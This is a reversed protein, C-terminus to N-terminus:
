KTVNQGIMMEVRRDKQYETKGARPYLESASFARFLQSCAQKIAAAEKENEATFVLKSMVAYMVTLARNMGLVDNYERNGREDCHGVFLVKLGRGKLKGMRPGIWRAMEEVRSEQDKRIEYKDFDFLIPKGNAQYLSVKKSQRPKQPKAAPQEKQQKQEKQKEMEKHTKFPNPPIRSEDKRGGIACVRIWARLLDEQHAGGISPAIAGAADAGIFKAIGAGAGMSYVHPSSTFRIDVKVYRCNTKQRATLIARSIATVPNGDPETKYEYEGLKRMFQPFSPLIKVAFNNEPLRFVTKSTTLTATDSALAELQEETLENNENVWRNLTQYGSIDERNYIQQMAQFLNPYPAQPGESQDVDGIMVSTDQRAEQDQAQTALPWSAFLCFALIMLCYKKKM